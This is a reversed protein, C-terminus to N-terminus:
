AASRRVYGADPEVSRWTLWPDSAEPMAAGGRRAPPDPPPRRRPARVIAVAIAVAAVAVGAGIPGLLVVTLLMAAGGISLMQESTRDLTNVRAQWGPRARPARRAPRPRSAWERREEATAKALEFALGTHQM